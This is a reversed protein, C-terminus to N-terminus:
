LAPHGVLQLHKDAPGVHGGHVPPVHGAPGASKTGLVSSRPRLLVLVVHLDASPLALPSGPWTSNKKLTSLLLLPLSIIEFHFALLSDPSKLWKRGQSSSYLSARIVILWYTIQCSFVFFFIYSNLNQMDSQGPTRNLVWTGVINSEQSRYVASFQITGLSNQRAKIIHQMPNSFIILVVKMKSKSWVRLCFFIITVFKLNTRDKYLQDQLVAQYPWIGWM